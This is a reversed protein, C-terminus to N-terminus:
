SLPDLSRQPPLCSRGPQPTRQRGDAPGHHPRPTIQFLAGDRLPYVRSDDTHVLALQSGTWLMATLTTGTDRAPDTLGLGVVTLALVPEGSGFALFERGQALLVGLSGHFWGSGLM